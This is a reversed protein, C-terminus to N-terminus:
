RETSPLGTFLDKLLSTFIGTGIRVDARPGNTSGFLERGEEGAKGSSMLASSRVTSPVSALELGVLERDTDM